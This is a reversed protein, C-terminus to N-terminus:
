KHFVPPGLDPRLPLVPSLGSLLKSETERRCYVNVTQEAPLFGLHPPAKKAFPPFWPFRVNERKRSLELFLGSAFM